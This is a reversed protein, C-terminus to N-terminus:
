RLERGSLWNFYEGDLEYAIVGYHKAIYIHRTKLGVYHYGGYGDEEYGEFTDRVVIVDNYTTDGITFTADTQLIEQKSRMYESQLEDYKLGITFPYDIFTGVDSEPIGEIWRGDSISYGSTEYHEYTQVDRLNWLTHIRNGISENRAFDLRTSRGNVSNEYFYTYRTDPTYDGAKLSMARALFASFHARTLLKNPQFTYSPERDDYQQEYGRAVNNMTVLQIPRYFENSAAVDKYTVANDAISKLNFSTALMKAMFARSISSEPKFYDAKGFIGAAYAAAIDEYYPHSKPIDKYPLVVNAKPLKLAEVLMKAIHKKAIPANPKFTGDSYGGIIGKDALYEIEINLSHSAPVDRFKAADATSAISLSVIAAALVATAKKWM